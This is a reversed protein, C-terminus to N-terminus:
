IMILRTMTKKEKKGQEKDYTIPNALVVQRTRTSKKLSAHKHLLKKRFNKGYMRSYLTLLLSLVSSSIQKIVNNPVFMIFDSVVQNHHLLANQIREILFSGYLLLNEKYM